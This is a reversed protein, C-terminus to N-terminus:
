YAKAVIVDQESAADCNFCEKFSKEKILCRTFAKYRKLEQECAASGCFGTQYIGGDQELAPGFDALKAAKHWYSQMRAKAKDFLEQQIDDLLDGVVEDLANLPVAMKKGLRTVLMVQQNELDRPGVEIRVPVGRLEWHYFKAGPSKTEDLDIHVRIADLEEAIKKVATIIASNDAGKKLIPVIVVQIPAVRPPLVLGKEDGHAMVLAGVLRTTAGWSTLHPYAMAGDKDQFKMDFAHAFTQSIRHSTGMQLAKGDQMIGEFTYTKLAGAFRESETKEGVIVPIALYNQALDVYEGLMLLAEADAEEATAHATHGEQWFFETTRLFPRPRLEWRVVNAWQNIKLPLDRWSKIWRAFMYHIITESTPRVVLPEELKKGGAITVVALEPAFGEVHQAEKKLFSEPIFLPFIANEHGTNKIKKDLIGKIREWLATGYPRIIITGRVPSHDALESQYIVENYWDSFHTKIDPLKQSSM